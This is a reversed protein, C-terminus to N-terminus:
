KLNPYTRQFVSNRVDSWQEDNLLPDGNDEDTWNEIAKELIEEMFMDITDIENHYCTLTIRTKRLYRVLHQIDM